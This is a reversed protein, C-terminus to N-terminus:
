IPSDEAYEELEEYDEETLEKVGTILTWGFKKYESCLSLIYQKVAEAQDELHKVTYEEEPRDLEGETGLLVVCIKIQKESMM